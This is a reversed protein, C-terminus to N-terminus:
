TAKRLESHSKLVRDGDDQEILYAPNGTDADRKVKTGKITREVPETFSEAIKGSGTGRGWDWEVKAGKRYRNM